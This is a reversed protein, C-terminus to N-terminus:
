ARQMVGFTIGSPDALIAMTDGDPLTTAPV